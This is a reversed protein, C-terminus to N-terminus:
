FGIGKDSVFHKYLVLLFIDRPNAFLSYVMILTKALKGFCLAIFKFTAQGFTKLKSDVEMRAMQLM